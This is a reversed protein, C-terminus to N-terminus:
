EEEVVMKELRISTVEERVEVANKLAADFDEEMDFVKGDKDVFEQLCEVFLVMTFEEAGKAKVRVEYPAIRLGGLEEFHNGLRMATAVPDLELTSTVYEHLVKNKALVMLLEEASLSGGCFGRAAFGFFVLLVFVKKMILGKNLLGDRTLGVAGPFECIIAGAGKNVAVMCYGKGSGTHWFVQTGLNDVRKPNKKTVGERLRVLFRECYHCALESILLCPHIRPFGRREDPVDFTVYFAGLLVSLKQSGEAEESGAVVEAIVILRDHDGSAVADARFKFEEKLM